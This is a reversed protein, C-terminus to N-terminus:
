TRVRPSRILDVWKEPDSPPETKLMALTERLARRSTPSAEKSVALLRQIGPSIIIREAALKSVATLSSQIWDGLVVLADDTESSGLREALEAWSRRVRSKMQM